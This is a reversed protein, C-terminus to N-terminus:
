YAQVPLLGGPGVMVMWIQDPGAEISEEMVGQMTVKITGPAVDLTPGDPSKSGAMAAVKVPKGGIKVTVAKDTINGVAIKVKGPKPFLPSAEAAKRDSTGLQLMTDSGDRKVTLTAPGNHTDFVVTAADDSIKTKEPVETWGKASLEKRYMEVVVSVKAAVTASISHRFLTSESGSSVGENPVPLGNNDTFTLLTNGNAPENGDASGDSEASQGEGGSQPALGEGTVQTHDGMTMLTLNLNSDGKSFDLAVMNDNNIVSPEEQWGQKKMADRYFAALEKVATATEFMISGSGADYNVSAADEPMPLPPTPDDVLIISPTNAQLPPVIPRFGTAEVPVTLVALALLSSALPPLHRFM